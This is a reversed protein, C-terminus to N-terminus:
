SKNNDQPSERETESRHSRTGSANNFLATDPFKESEPVALVRVRLVTGDDFRRETDELVRIDDDPAM